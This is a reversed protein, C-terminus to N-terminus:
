KHKIIKPTRITSHNQTIMKLQSLMQPLIDTTDYLKNLMSLSKMSNPYGFVMRFSLKFIIKIVLLFIMTSVLSSIPNKKSRKYLYELSKEIDKGFDEPVKGFIKQFVNSKNIFIIYSILKHQKDKLYDKNYMILNFM